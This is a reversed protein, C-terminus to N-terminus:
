RPAAIRMANTTLSGTAAACRARLMPPHTETAAWPSDANTDSVRM